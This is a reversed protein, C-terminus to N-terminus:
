RATRGVLRQVRWAGEDEALEVSGVPLGPVGLAAPVPVVLLVRARGPEQPGPELDLEIDDIDTGALDTRLGNVLDSLFLDEDTSSAVGERLRGALGEDMGRGTAVRLVTARGERGLLAWVTRHESWAVADLFRRAVAVPDDPDDSM